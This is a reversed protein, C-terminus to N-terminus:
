NGQQEDDLGESEKYFIKYTAKEIKRTEESTAKISGDMIAIYRSFTLLEKNTIGYKLYNTLYELEKEFNGIPKQRKKIPKYETKNNGLINLIGRDETM